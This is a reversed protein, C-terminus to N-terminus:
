ATELTVSVSTGSPSSSVTLTAGIQDARERMIRLGMGTQEQLPGRLGRGNDAVCLRLVGDQHTLEVSILGAHAHRAANAVGEQAIRYLNDSVEHSLSAFDGACAVEIPVGRRALLECREAVAQDLTLENLYSPRLQQAIDRLEAAVDAVERALQAALHKPDGAGGNALLQLHLSIAYLSQGAGDHLDRYLRSREEERVLGQIRNNLEQLQAQYRDSIALTKNFKRMLSRYDDALSAYEAKLDLTPRDPAALVQGLRALVVEEINIRDSAM